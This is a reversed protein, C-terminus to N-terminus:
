WDGLDGKMAQGGPHATQASACTNEGAALWGSQATALGCWVPFAPWVELQAFLVHLGTLLIRVIFDWSSPQQQKYKAWSHGTKGSRGRRLSGRGLQMVAGASFSRCSLQQGVPSLESAASWSWSLGPRTAAPISSTRDWGSWKSAVLAM